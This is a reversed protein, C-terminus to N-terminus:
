SPISEWADNNQGFWVCQAPWQSEVIQPSLDVEKYCVAWLGRWAAGKFPYVVKFRALEPM